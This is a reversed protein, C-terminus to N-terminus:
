LSLNTNIIDLDPQNKTHHSSYSTILSLTLNLELPDGNFSDRSSEGLHHHSQLYLTGMLTKLPRGPDITPNLNELPAGFSQRFNTRTINVQDDRALVIAGNGFRLQQHHFKPNDKHPCSRTNNGSFCSPRWQHHHSSSVQPTVKGQRGQLTKARYMQLHSKVHTTSIGKVNMLKLVAKPTAGLRQIARLFSTHLLPTWRLRGVSRKKMMEDNITNSSSSSRHEIINKVAKMPRRRRCVQAENLDDDSCLVKNEGLKGAVDDEGFIM